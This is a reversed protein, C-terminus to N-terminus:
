NVANEIKCACTKPWSPAEILICWLEYTFNSATSFLSPPDQPKSDWRSAQLPEGMCYDHGLIIQYVSKHM